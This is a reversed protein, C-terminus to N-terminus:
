ASRLSSSAKGGNAFMQVRKCGYAALTHGVRPGCIAKSTGALATGDVLHQRIHCSPHLFTAALSM